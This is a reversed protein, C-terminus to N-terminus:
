HIGAFIARIYINSSGSRLSNSGLIEITELNPCNRIVIEETLTSFAYQGITISKLNPYDDIIFDLKDGCLSTKVGTGSGIIISSAYREDLLYCDEDNIIEVGPAECGNNEICKKLRTETVETNIMRKFSNVGTFTGFTFPVDKRSLSHNYM